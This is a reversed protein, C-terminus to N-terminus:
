ESRSADDLFWDGNEFVWYDYLTESSRSGDKELATVRMKARARLGTIQLNILELTPKERLFSKWTSLDKQWDEETERFTPRMRASWMAVYAEFDGTLFHSWVLTIRVRLREENRNRPSDTVESCSWVVALSIAYVLMKRRMARLEVQM